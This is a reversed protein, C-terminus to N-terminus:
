RQIEFRDGSIRAVSEYRSTALRREQSAVTAFRTVPVPADRQNATFGTDTLRAQQLMELRTDFATACNGTKAPADLEKM